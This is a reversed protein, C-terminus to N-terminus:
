RNLKITGCCYIQRKTMDDFLEPYSFYSDEDNTVTAHTAILHQPMCQRDKVLYVKM